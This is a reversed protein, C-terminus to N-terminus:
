SYNPTCDTCSDTEIASYKPQLVDCCPSHRLGELDAAFFMGKCTECKFGAVLNFSMVCIDDVLGPFSLACHASQLYSPNVWWVKKMFVRDYEHAPYLAAFECSLLADEGSM